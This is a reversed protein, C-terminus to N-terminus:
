NRSSGHINIVHYTIRTRFNRVSYTCVTYKYKNSSVVQWTLRASCTQIMPISVLSSARMRAGLFRARRGDADSLRQLSIILTAPVRPSLSHLYPIQIPPLISLYLQSSSNFM